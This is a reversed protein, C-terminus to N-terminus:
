ARKLKSLESANPYNAELIKLSNNALSDLGLKRYSKVMLALAPIVEPTGNYHELVNSARNASAVYAGRRYYYDAILVNKRAIINRIYRMRLIADPTYVSNPYLTVLESFSNFAQIKDSLDRPAPDVGLAKQLWTFGQQYNILGRMYFAYDVHAGRPYLRIYRDAAALASANDSKKYYAYIIDLQGQQAYPGFPYIADLAEFGNVARDYKGEALALESGHFIQASTMNKFAALNNSSKACGALFAILVILLTLRKM